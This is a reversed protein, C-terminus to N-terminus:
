PALRVAVRFSTQLRTESGDGAISLRSDSTVTRNARRASLSRRRTVSLRAGRGALVICINVPAVTVNRHNPKASVTVM